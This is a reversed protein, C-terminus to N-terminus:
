PTFVENVDSVSIGPHIGGGILFMRGDVEAVGMGHRATPMSELVSWKRTEPDYAEVADFTVTPAEGGFVYIKGDYAVVGAGSRRNEMSEWREWQDNRGRFVDLTDLAYALNGQRGGVIYTDDGIRVSGHQERMSLLPEAASWM